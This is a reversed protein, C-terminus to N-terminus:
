LEFNSFLVQIVLFGFSVFTLFKSKKCKSNISNIDVAEDSPKSQVLFRNRM